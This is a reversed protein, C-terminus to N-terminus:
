LITIFYHQTMFFISLLNKFEMSTYSVSSKLPNTPPIITIIDKNTTNNKYM